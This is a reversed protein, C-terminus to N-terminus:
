LKRLWFVLLKQKSLSFYIYISILNVTSENSDNEDSGHSEPSSFPLHQNINVAPSRDEKATIM